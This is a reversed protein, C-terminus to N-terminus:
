SPPTFFFPFFFFLRLSNIFRSFFIYRDDPPIILTLAHNYCQRYVVCSLTIVTNPLAVFHDLGNHPFHTHEKRLSISAQPSTLGAANLLRLLGVLCTMFIFKCCSEPIMRSEELSIRFPAEGTYRAHPEVMGRKLPHPLFHAADGKVTLRTPPQLKSSFNLQRISPTSVPCLEHARSM